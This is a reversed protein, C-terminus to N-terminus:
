FINSLVVKVRILHRKRRWEFFAAAHKLKCKNFYRLLVAEKMESTINQIKVLKSNKDKKKKALTLVM